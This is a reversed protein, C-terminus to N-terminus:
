DQAATLQNIKFKDLHMGSSSHYNVYEASLATAITPLYYSIHLNYLTTFIESSAIESDGQEGEGQGRSLCRGFAICTSIGHLTGV